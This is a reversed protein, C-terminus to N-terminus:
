QGDKSVYNYGYHTVCLITYMLKKAIPWQPLRPQKGLCSACVTEIGDETFVDHVTPELESNFLLQQLTSLQWSTAAHRLQPHTIEM